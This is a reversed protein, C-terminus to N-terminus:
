PLIKRGGAAYSISDLEFGLSKYVRIADKEDDAVMVQTHDAREVLARRAAEYVMTSAVSQRRFKERVAVEQYRYVGEGPYIGVTGAAEGGVMAVYWKGLGKAIMKRHEEINRTAFVEYNPFGPSFAEINIALVEKWLPDDGTIEKVIVNPNSHRPPLLTRLTLIQGLTSKLGEEKLQQVVSEEAPGSQWTMMRYTTKPEILLKEDIVRLWKPIEELKPPSALVLLNGWNWTPNQPTRIIIAEGIDEIQSLERWFIMETRLFLSTLRM